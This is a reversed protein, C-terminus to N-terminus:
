CPSNTSLLYKISTRQFVTDKWKKTMDPFNYPNAPWSCYCSHGWHHYPRKCGTAKRLKLWLDQTNGKWKLQKVADEILARSLWHASFRLAHKNPYHAIIIQLVDEPIGEVYDRFRQQKQNLRM